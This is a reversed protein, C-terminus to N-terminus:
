DLPPLYKSFGALVSLYCRCTLEEPHGEDIHFSQGACKRRGNQQKRGREALFCIVLVGDLCRQRHAAAGSRVVFVLGM